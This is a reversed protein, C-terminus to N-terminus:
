RRRPQRRASRAQQPTGVPDLAELALLADVQSVFRRLYDPSVDRILATARLVLMHSNLPGANAPHRALAAGARESARIRAWAEHFSRVSRMQTGADEVAAAHDRNLRALPLARSPTRAALAGVARYDHAAMLRRAERAVAPAAAALREADRVAAERARELRNRCDTLAAELRAELLRRVPEPQAPMRKAIAEAHAFRVPEAVEAGDARLAELAAALADSPARDRDATGRAARETM